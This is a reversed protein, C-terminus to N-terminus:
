GKKTPPLFGRNAAARRYRYATPQSIHLTAMMGPIGGDKWAAAARRLLDDDVTRRSSATRVKDKTPKDVEPFISARVGGPIPDVVLASSAVLSDLWRQVPLRASGRTLFAGDDATLTLGVCRPIGDIVAVDLLATFGDLELEAEFRSPLAVGPAVGAMGKMLNWSVHVAKPEYEQKRVPVCSVTLSLRLAVM